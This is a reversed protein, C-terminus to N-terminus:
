ALDPLLGSALLVHDYRQQNFKNGFLINDKVSANMIFAQQPVYAMRGHVKVMGQRKYMDGIIANLISTKGQGVRGVIATLNGRHVSMNINVLTPGYDKEVPVPRAPIP